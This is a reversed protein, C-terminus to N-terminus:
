LKDRYICNQADCLQCTYPHKKVKPGIGIVGSVSKIPAMLASSSLTIGCYNDPFFSFLKFQDNVPWGCYGPSYRNTIKLEKEQMKIELEGQMKDVAAEVTVSGLVDYVYGRM